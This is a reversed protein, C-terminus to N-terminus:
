NQEYIVVESSLISERFCSDELGKYTMLDVPRNLSKELKETFFGFDFMGRLKESKAVILDIDSNETAEGRAYSGFLAVKPLDYEKAIPIVKEKIEEITM